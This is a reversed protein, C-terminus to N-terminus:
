RRKKRIQEQRFDETQGTSTEIVDRIKKDIKTQNFGSQCMNYFVGMNQIKIMDISDYEKLFEEPTMPDLLLSALNAYKEEVDQSLGKFEKETAKEEKKLKKILDKRKQSLQDIDDLLSIAKRLEDDHPDDSSEIFNIRKNIREVQSDIYEIEEEIEIATEFVPEMDKQLKEIEKQFDVLTRNSCRKFKRPKGCFEITAKTFAM